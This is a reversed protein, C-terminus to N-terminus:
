TFTSKICQDQNLYYSMTNYISDRRSSYMHLLIHEESGAWIKIDKHAFQLRSIHKHILINKLYEELKKEREVDFGDELEDTNSYVKEDNRYITWSDETSIYENKGFFLMLDDFYELRIGTIRKNLLNPIFKNPYDIIM